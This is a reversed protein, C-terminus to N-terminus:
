TSYARTHAVIERGLAEALKIPVANGILKGIKKFLIPENSKTFKYSKPFSQLIAGERLSIARDQSPHGFRGNGFGFFQTTIAPSIDDWEMRGYVSVYREGTEKKHCEAMLKKPWDRWTGGPNSAKIRKLNLESLTSCLHLKDSSCQQGAELKKMHSIAARVTKKNRINSPQPLKIEGLRSALLVLRHRHQPVGFDSCCVTGYDAHYGLQELTNVFDTFIATNKLLPVNEMSVINPLSETVLRQFQKILEWREDRPRGRSYTSFPQCPACGALVSYASGSFASRIEEGTVDAVSKLVFESDNNATYPYQCDSDIDIGMVTKIGSREFGKTLGGAGCFLDVAHISPKSNPPQRKM